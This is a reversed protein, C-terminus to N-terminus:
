NCISSLKPHAGKEFTCGIAFYAEFGLSPRLVTSTPPFRSNAAVQRFTRGRNRKSLMRKGSKGGVPLLIAM